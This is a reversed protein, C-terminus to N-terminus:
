DNKLADLIRAYEGGGDLLTVVRADLMMENLCESVVTGRDSTESQGFSRM